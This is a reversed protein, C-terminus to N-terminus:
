EIYRVRKKLEIFNEQYEPIAYYGEGLSGHYIEDLIDPTCSNVFALFDTPDRSLLFKIPRVIVHHNDEEMLQKYEAITKIGAFNLAAEVDARCDGVLQAYYLYFAPNGNLRQCEEIIGRLRDEHCGTIRIDDLLLVTKGEYFKPNPYFSDKALLLKRQDSDALGFDQTFTVKRHISSYDVHTGNAEVALHNIRNVFHKALITAANRVYNYPSPIVVTQNTFLVEKHKAFFANALETGFRKATVDSGFKLKSYEVPDFPMDGNDWDAVTFDHVAFITM